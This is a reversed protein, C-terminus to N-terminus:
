GIRGELMSPGGNIHALWTLDFGASELLARFEAETREKGGGMVLVELDMLVAPSFRNGQPIIYELILLRGERPLGRRCNSLIALCAEDDWDHLVNSLIILESEGPICKFFDCPEARARDSLGAATIRGEIEQILSAREAALGKLRRHANLIEILLKGSGGGVDTVSKVLTFDYLEVVARSFAATKLANATDFAAAQEAHDEFWDFVPRGHALEFAPVGTKLSDTLRAWAQDHWESLFMLAMPGLAERRLCEGLPNLAFIEDEHQDFVGVSALARMLRYVLDERAGTLGSLEGATKPGSALLDPVGLEMAAYIPRSIWKGLIFRMMTEHPSMGDQNM